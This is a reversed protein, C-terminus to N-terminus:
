FFPAKAASWTKIISGGPFCQVRGDRFKVHTCNEREAVQQADWCTIEGMPTKIHININSM